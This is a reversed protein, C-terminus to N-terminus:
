NRSPFIGLLAICYNVVLYPAMNNHPQSGGTSTLATTAMPVNGSAAYPNGAVQGPWFSNSPAANVALSSGTPVHTHLPMEQVTLTHNIEGGTQGLVFGGGYHMPVQGQLNPLNFTTQGNGGYYTGILSFLAQNQSIPLVQGNCLAWGKPAFPFSFIKIESLFPTSAMIIYKFILHISVTRYFSSLLLLFFGM